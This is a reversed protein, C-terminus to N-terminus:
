HGEKLGVADFNPHKRELCRKCLPPHPMGAVLMAGCDPCHYMGLPIDKLLEPKEKCNAPFLEDVHEYCRGCILDKTTNM